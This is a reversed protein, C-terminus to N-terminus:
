RDGQTKNTLLTATRTAAGYEDSINTHTTHLSPKHTRTTNHPPPNSITLHLCQSQALTHSITISYCISFLYVWGKKFRSVLTTRRPSILATCHTTGECSYAFPSSIFVSSTLIITAPSDKGCSPVARTNIRFCQMAVTHLMVYIVTSAYIPQTYIGIIFYIQKRCRYTLYAMFEYLQVRCVQDSSGM